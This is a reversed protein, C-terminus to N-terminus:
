IPAVLSADNYEPTNVRTSVPWAVLLEEPYQRMLTRADAVSGSVRMDYDGRSLTVPMRVRLAPKQSQVPRPATM